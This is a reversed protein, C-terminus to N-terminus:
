KGGLCKEQKLLRCSERRRRKEVDKREVKWRDYEMYDYEGRREAEEITELSKWV